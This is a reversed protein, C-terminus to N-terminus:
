EDYDGSDYFYVVKAEEDVSEFHAYEELEMLEEVCDEVYEGFMSGVVVKYGKEFYEMALMKM